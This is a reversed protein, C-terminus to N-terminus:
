KGRDNVFSDAADVVCEAFLAMAFGKGGAFGGWRSEVDIFVATRWLNYLMVPLYFLLLRVVPSNSCTRGTIGKIVRFGAEIVWRRRYELTEAMVVEASTVPMNTAFVLYKDAINADKAKGEKKTGDKKAKNEEKKKEVIASGSRPAGTKNTM